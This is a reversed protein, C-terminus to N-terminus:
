LEGSTQRNGRTRTFGPLGPRQRWRLARDPFKWGLSYLWSKIQPVSGPNPLKEGVKPFVPGEHDPPLGESKLLDFWRESILSLGGDQRSLKKPRHRKAVVPVNPMVSALILTKEKKM